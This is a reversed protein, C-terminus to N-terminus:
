FIRPIAFPAVFVVLAIAGALTALRGEIAKTREGLGDVSKTLGDFAEKSQQHRLKSIEIGALQREEMRAMRETLEAILDREDQTM